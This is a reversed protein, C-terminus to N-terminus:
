VEHWEVSKGSLSLYSFQICYKSFLYINKANPATRSFSILLVTIYFLSSFPKLIAFYVCLLMLLPRISRVIFGFIEFTSYTAEVTIYEPNGCSVTHTMRLVNGSLSHKFEVDKNSVNYNRVFNIYNLLVTNSPTDVRANLLGDAYKSLRNQYVQM